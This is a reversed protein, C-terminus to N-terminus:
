RGEVCPAYDNCGLEDLTPDIGCAGFPEPLDGSGAFLHSLVAIADAIDVAGDDNADAADLCSPSPGEAFLFSLTFIADAIDIANDANADGRHFEVAPDTQIYRVTAYDFWTDTEESFGTVYVNGAADLALANACDTGGAPGDYRAVWLEEGAPSYKVTTYDHGTGWEEEGPDGGWSCGTVYVNGESDLALARAEDWGGAPGDYRAVWLQEGEPGYKVTAYDRPTTWDGAREGSSGTVYVNGDSDLALADALDVGGAPGDYRAVWLEDGEPSYKVTAYDRPTTWDTDFGTSYGTVYVNGDSDLALARANDNGGALGCYRVVWVEEGEPNYKVTAYDVGTGWEEEFPDGGWSLGTVYVNGATDLALASARDDGGRHHYRAVWLEGGDSSYKVTAYDWGTDSGWSYGTVYVNGQSDLALGGRAEDDGGAPGDYRAVWLQEGEPSYKVTAYDWGTDSGESWGTVYVNGAIDLALANACDYGGAPGDYRAVWLEEGAPSYRVTAYDRGTGIGRSSGTVSVNGESDLALANALHSGPVDPFWEYRAVWLESAEQTFALSSMGLITLLSVVTFIHAKRSRMAVESYHIGQRHVKPAGLVSKPLRGDETEGTTGARIPGARRLSLRTASGPFREPAMSGRRM